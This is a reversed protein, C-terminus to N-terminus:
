KAPGDAIWRDLDRVYRRGNFMYEPITVVVYGKGVLPKGDKNTENAATAVVWLDYNVGPNEAAPTFLGTSSVKGVKDNLSTRAAYFVDISWTADIPGLELDDPTHMRGDPGRQYGIAELQEYGRGYQPSGFGAMSSEPVVKVYDVRDFIALAGQLTSGCLVVDHKGLAADAAVDVQAVVEGANHSVVQRVTVGRGFNLDAPTVQAPINDAILRIVSAQSGIKLSQRDIALFTVGPAARRLQVDYGFEQYQGWFWRGQARTQDPALWLVERAENSPDDPAANASNNSRSRGRWAYGDFVLTQGTRVITSGDKISHLTVKTTFDDPTAGPDVQMEGFYQGRGAVHATVLWRGTIKPAAARKSWSAWEASHFPAAKALFADADERKVNYQAVHADTLQKWDDPSRRWSLARAVAHCKTCGDLANEKAIRAEDHVRREPYYMVPLAEEPALGHSASLYQVIARAEPPTVTVHKEMIMKKLAEQWGEPTAREWSIREMNGREDRAHCSGCKATVLPDTVPIGEERPAAPQGLLLVPVAVAQLLM